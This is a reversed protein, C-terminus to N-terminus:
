EQKMNKITEITHTMGDLFATKYLDGLVIAKENSHWKEKYLDQVKGLETIVEDLVLNRIRENKLM